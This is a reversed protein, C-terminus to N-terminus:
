IEKHRRINEPANNVHGKTMLLLVYCTEKSSHHTILLLCNKRKKKACKLTHLFIEQRVKRHKRTEGARILGELLHQRYVARYKM